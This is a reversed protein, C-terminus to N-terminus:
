GTPSLLPLDHWDELQLVGDVEVSAAPLGAGGVAIRTEEPVTRRLETVYTAYTAQAVPSIVSVCLWAPGQEAAFKALADRPTNPGLYTVRCGSTALMVALGLVGLEHQEGVFTTCAVHTGHPPGCRVGLLMAVLRERVYNSAFHEQAVTVDGREWADGIERLMPFYVEDIATEHAVGILRQSLQEAQVRDFALLARMLRQRLGRFAESDLRPAGDSPAPVQRQLLDVAESIQLGDALASKIQVLTAVDEDSYVRYGNPLRDPNLLGYRREWAVITNKPIGTLESITKIRYGM